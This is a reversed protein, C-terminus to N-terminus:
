YAAFFSVLIIFIFTFYIIFTFRRTATQVAVRILNGAMREVFKKYHFKTVIKEYKEVMGKNYKKLDRSLYM